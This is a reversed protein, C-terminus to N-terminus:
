CFRSFIYKYLIEVSMQQQISKYHNQEPDDSVVNFSPVSHEAHVCRHTNCAEQSQPRLLGQTICRTEDVDRPNLPDKIWCQVSRYRMGGNCAASCKGYVGTKYFYRQTDRPPPILLAAASPSSITNEDLGMFEEHVLM